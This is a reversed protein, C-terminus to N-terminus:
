AEVTYDYDLRDDWVKTFGATGDAWVIPLFGSTDSLDVKKIRWLASSQTSGPLAEGIYKSTSVTDILKDYQMNAENLADLQAQLGRVAGISTSFAKPIIDPLKGEKGDAGQLEIYDGWLGNPLQFALKTGDWRHDPIPGISGKPGQLGTDGQDGRPGTEGRDGTDGKPGQNGQLGSEGSQGRLGPMGMQGSVGKLTSQPFPSLKRFSTVTQLKAM